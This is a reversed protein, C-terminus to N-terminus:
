PAVETAGRSEGLVSEPKLGQAFRKTEKLFASGCPFDEASIALGAKV